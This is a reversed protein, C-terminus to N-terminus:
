DSLYGNVRFHLQFFGGGWHRPLSRSGLPRHGLRHHSVAARQGGRAHLHQGPSGHARQRQARDRDLVQLRGPARDRRPQRPLALQLRQRAGQVCFETRSGALMAEALDAPPILEAIKFGPEGSCGADTRRFYCSDLHLSVVPRPAVGPFAQGFGITVSKPFWPAGLESKGVTFRQAIAFDGWTYTSFSSPTGSTGVLTRAVAPPDSVELEFIQVGNENNATAFGYYRGGVTAVAVGQTNDLTTYGGQNDRFGAAPTPATPDTIDIIQVRDAQNTERM